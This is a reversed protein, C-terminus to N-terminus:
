RQRDPVLTPPTLPRDSSEGFEGSRYAREQSTSPYRTCPSTGLSSVEKFDAEWSVSLQYDDKRAIVSFNQKNISESWDVEWGKEALHDKLRVFAARVGTGDKRVVTWGHNVRYVGDVPKDDMQELGDAPYCVDTSASNSDHHDRPDEPGPRPTLATGLDLVRFAEQNDAAIRKLMEPPPAKDYSEPWGYMLYWGGVVLLVVPTVLLAAIWRGRRGAAPTPTPASTSTDTPEPASMSAM